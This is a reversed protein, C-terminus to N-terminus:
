FMSPFCFEAACFNIVRPEVCRRESLLFKAAGVASRRGGVASRRGGIADKALNLRGLCRFRILKIVFVLFHRCISVDREFTPLSLFKVSCLREEDSCLSLGRQFASPFWFEVVYCLCKEVGFTNAFFKAVYLLDVSCRVADETLNRRDSVFRRCPAVFAGDILSRRCFCCFKIACFYIVRPGVCRCESLLFKVVGIGVRGQFSPSMFVDISCRRLM